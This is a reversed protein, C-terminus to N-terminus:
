HELYLDIYAYKTRILKKALTKDEVRELKNPSSFLDHETVRFFSQGMALFNLYLEGTAIDRVRFDGNLGSSILAHFCPDATVPLFRDPQKLM